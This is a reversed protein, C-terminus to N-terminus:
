KNDGNVYKDINKYVRKITGEILDKYSIFIYHNEYYKKKFEENLSVNECKAIEGNVEIIKLLDGKKKNKFFENFPSNNKSFERKTKKDVALPKTFRKGDIEINKDPNKEPYISRLAEFYQGEKFEPLKKKAEDLLDQLTMRM